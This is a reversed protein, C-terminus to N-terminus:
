PEPLEVKAGVLMWPLLEDLVHVPHGEVMRVLVSHLWAYPEVNNLKATEILSAMIAWRRAGGESGAFLSNKRGLAVPRIAREVPNTDLEIRGDDLFRILASWRALAYRIAEALCARGPLRRLQEQLWDHMAEVIPRSREQRARRREDPPRGRIEREIEYLKGIRRVVETAVPSGTEHLEFFKRRAHAWCAALTIRGSGALGEFGAYGDVQLIGRFNRLHQAPREGRRDPEYRFLVAPPTIDGHARGDRTYVWLRGTRTRGRGPDLVPLPTDDAFLRDAAMIHAALREHLPELWWCAAGVWGALTSRSIGMGHRALIRSQRYLPLHDCYRSVLVHALLAPTALGGAIVREPAPAQHLTGCARCACKPRTIRLVRLQAPIWDLMESSTAGADHLAGGCDPCRQHPVPLITEVRPLHAPLPGRHPPAEPQPPARTQVLPAATVAVALDTELEELALSTQEPDLREASRGFRARKFEVIIQRLREIESQRSDLASAMDRVLRHLVDTDTPLQDLAIRM